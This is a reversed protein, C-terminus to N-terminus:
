LPPVLITTSIGTGTPNPMAPGTPFGLNGTHIHAFNAVPLSPAAGLMVSPATLTIIGGATVSVAGGAALSMAAASSLSLAAGAVLNMAAGATLNMFGSSATVMLNVLSFLSGLLGAPDLVLQGGWPIGPPAIRSTLMAMGNIAEGIWSPTVLPISGLTANSGIAKYAGAAFHSIHSGSSVKLDGTMREIVPGQVEIHRPGEVNCEDRGQVRVIRRGFTQTAEGEVVEGKTSYEEVRRRATSASQGKVVTTKDGMVELDDDEAIRREKFGSVTERSNCVREDSDPFTGGMWYPHSPDGGEFMVCAEAGINPLQIDGRYNGFPSVCMRADPIDEVGVEEGYVSPIRVKIRANAGHAVVEGVYLGPYFVRDGSRIM